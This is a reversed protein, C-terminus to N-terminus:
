VCRSTYLLCPPTVSANLVEIEHGLIEVEGSPMNVNVTGEPRARVKGTIKLCFENRVSEAIAFM